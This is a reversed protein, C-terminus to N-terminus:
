GLFLLHWAASPALLLPYLPRMLSYVGKCYSGRLSCLSTGLISVGQILPSESINVAAAGSPRAEAIDGFEGVVRDRGGVRRGCPDRERCCALSKGAEPGQDTCHGGGSVGKVGEEQPRRRMIVCALGGGGLAM